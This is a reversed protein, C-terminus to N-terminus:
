KHTSITNNRMSSSNKVHIPMSSQKLKIKASKSTIKDSKNLIKIIHLLSNQIQFYARTSM